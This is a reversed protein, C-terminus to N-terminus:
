AVKFAFGVSQFLQVTEKPYLLAAGLGPKLSCCPLCENERTRIYASLNDELVLDVM